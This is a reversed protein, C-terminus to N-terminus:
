PSHPLTSGGAAGCGAGLGTAGYAQVM